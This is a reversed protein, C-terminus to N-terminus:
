WDGLDATADDEAHEQSPYWVALVYGLDAQTEIVPSEANSADCLACACQLVLGHRYRRFVLKGLRAVAYRGHDDRVIRQTLIQQGTLEALQAALAAALEEGQPVVSRRFADVARAQWNVAPKAQTIPQQM